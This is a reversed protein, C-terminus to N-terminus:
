CSLTNKKGPHSCHPRTVLMGVLQAPQGGEGEFDLTEAVGPSPKLRDKTVMIDCLYEVLAETAGTSYKQRRHNKTEIIKRCRSTGTLLM